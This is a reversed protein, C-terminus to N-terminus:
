ALQQFIAPFDLWVQERQIEGGETFAIVHLMRFALARGKGEIGFPRGVARGRWLTEDILVNEGYHRRICQSSGEALDAFLTEYFARAQARGISPGAPWGIVDHECDAALTSLVGEVDDRAEFGFHEEIKRDMFERTLAM